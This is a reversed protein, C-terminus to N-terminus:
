NSAEAPFLDRGTFTKVFDNIPLLDLGGPKHTQIIALGCGVGILIAGLVVFFIFRKM